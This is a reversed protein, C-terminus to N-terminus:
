LLTNEPAGAPQGDTAPHIVVGGGYGSAGNSLVMVVLVM